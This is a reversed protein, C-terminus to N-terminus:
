PNNGLVSINARRPECFIDLNEPLMAFDELFTLDFRIELSM